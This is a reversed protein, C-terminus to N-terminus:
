LRVRGRKIERRLARGFKIVDMEANGSSQMTINIDGNLSTTGTNTHKNIGSNMGILQTRYRAASKPNMVFEGPSLMANIMDSGRAMGGAAFEQTGGGEGVTHSIPNTRITLILNRYQQELSFLSSSFENNLNILANQGQNVAPLQKGLAGLNNNMEDIEINSNNILEQTLKLMRAWKDMTEGDVMAGVIDLSKQLEERFAKTAEPDGKKALDLLWQANEEVSQLVAPNVKGESIFQLADRYRVFAEGAKFWMEEQEDSVLSFNEADIGLAKQLENQAGPREKTADQSWIPTGVPQNWIVSYNAEKFRELQELAAKTSAQSAEMLAKQLDLAQNKTALLGKQTDEFMDIKRNREMYVNQELMIDKIRESAEVIWKMRQINEEGEGLLGVQKAAENLLRLKGEAAEKFEKPDRIKMLDEIGKATVSHQRAMEEFNALELVAIKKRAEM